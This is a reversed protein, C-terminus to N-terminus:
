RNLLWEKSVFTILGHKATRTLLRVIDGTQPDFSAFDSGKHRNCDFCALCLNDAVTEGRHKEAIVHDIEHSLHSFREDILCYECCDKALDHIHRRLADPIYSM